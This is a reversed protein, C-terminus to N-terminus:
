EVTFSWIESYSLKSLTAQDGAGIAAGLTTPAVAWSYSSGKDLEKYFPEALTFFVSTSNLPLYYPTYGPLLGTVRAVYNNAGPCATWQFMENLGVLEGDGPVLLTPAVHKKIEWRESWHVTSGIKAGISWEWNGDEAELEVFEAPVFLSTAGGMFIGELPVLPSHYGDTWVNLFYGSPSTGTAAKWSFNLNNTLNWTIGDYPALLVPALPDVPPDSDYIDVTTEPTSFEVPYGAYDFVVDMSLTATGDHDATFEWQYTAPNGPEITGKGVQSSGGTLSLLSGTYNITLFMDEYPGPSYNVYNADANFTDYEDVSSPHTLLTEPQVDQSVSDQAEVNQGNVTGDADVTFEKSGDGNFLVYWTATEVQLSGIDPLAQPNDGGVLVTGSPLTLEATVDELLLIGDNSVDAAVETVQYQHASTGSPSTIEVSIDGVTEESLTTNASIAYTDGSLGSALQTLKVAILIDKGMDAAGCQYYEKNDYQKTSEYILEDTDRDYVQIDFNSIQWSPYVGHKNYVLVVRDGLALNDISYYDVQGTNFLTNSYTDAIHSYSEWADPNGFGSYYDPGVVGPSATYDEANAFTLAKMELPDTVGASMLCTVLGTYHPAAASTGSFWFWGGTNGPARTMTYGMIDPKLRQESSLPGYVPGYKSTTYYTDNSRGATNNHQIGAISAANYCTAPKDSINDGPCSQGRNGCSVSWFVDYLDITQDVFSSIYHLGNTQTCDTPFSMSFNIVEADNYGSGGLGAWNYAAVLTDNIQWTGDCMKANYYTQISYAMGRYSSDRSTIVGATMTGHNINDNVSCGGAYTPFYQSIFNVGSFASHATNVGSDLAMVDIGEGHYGEDWLVDPYAGPRLKLAQASLDIDPLIEYTDSIVELVGDLSAIESIRDRSTEVSLTNTIVDKFRTVTGPITEVLASMEDLNEDLSGHLLATIYAAREAKLELIQQVLPTVLAQVSSNLGSERNERYIEKIQDELEDILAFSDNAAFRVDSYLGQPTGELVVTVMVRDTLPEIYEDSVRVLARFWSKPSNGNVPEITILIPELANQPTVGPIILELRSSYLGTCCPKVVSALEAGEFISYGGPIMGSGSEVVIRSVQSTIDGGTDPLQWDFLSIDLVIEGGSTGDDLRYTTSRSTDCDTVLTRGTNVPSNAIVAFQMERLVDRDDPIRVIYNRIISAGQPFVGKLGSSNEFYDDLSDDPGIGDSFYRYGFISENVEGPLSIYGDANILIPDNAGPLVITPDYVGRVGSSSILVGSLDYLGIDPMTDPFHITCDLEIIGQSEYRALSGVQIDLLEESWDFGALSPINMTNVATRLPSLDIVESDGDFSLEYLGLIISDSDESSRDGADTAGNGTMAPDGAVPTTPSQSGSCGLLFFLMCIACVQLVNAARTRM